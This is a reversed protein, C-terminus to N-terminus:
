VWRYFVKVNKGDLKFVEICDKVVEIYQKLVLYCFVRNSYMVFELNSCLFSESYKEIVKKYNGKKVFENGEEKLVRVKEVDGVFFVRNKIVIIEKFKSKVMEKYNELFLFNWRKQVLVFVLFILFLKLCWEFGFLDMFVRIMRNIGEVVLMVNDDIQLVIKYDVYVM